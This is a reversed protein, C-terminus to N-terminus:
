KHDNVTMGDAPRYGRIVTEPSNGRAIGLTRLIAIDRTKNKVLMVVGTIINLSTITILVLMVIRMLSREVNLANLYQARSRKWDIARYRRKHGGGRGRVTIKGQVNRGGTKKLPRPLSKEPTKKTVEAPLNGSANRRGNTTNRYVRIGM